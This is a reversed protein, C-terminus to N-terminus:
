EDKKDSYHRKQEEIYNEIDRRMFRWQGGVKFGPLEGQNALRIVTRSHVRLMKGVEDADLIDNIVSLYGERKETDSNYSTRKEEVDPVQNAKSLIYAEIDSAEFRMESNVYRFPLEGRYALRRVESGKMGLMTAVERPRLLDAESKKRIRIKEPLFGTSSINTLHEQYLTILGWEYVYADRENEFEAVIEKPVEKGQARIQRIKSMKADNSDYYSLHFREHLNIRDGTGKGVYFPIATDPDCLLYVYWM